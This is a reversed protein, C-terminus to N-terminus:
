FKHTARKFWLSKYDVRGNHNLRVGQLTGGAHVHVTHARHHLFHLAHQHVLKNELELLAQVHLQTDKTQRIRKITDMLNQKLTPSLFDYIFSTPAQLTRILSVIPSKGFAVGCVVIDAQALYQPETLEHIPVVNVTAPIGLKAWQTQLWYAEAEHNAQPRLQTAYIHLPEGQYNSQKLLQLAQEINGNHPEHQQSEDYFFSYAPMYNEYNLDEAIRTIPLALYLAARFLENQQPGQKTLNYTYFSAGHEMRRLTRWPLAGEHEEKPGEQQAGFDYRYNILQREEQFLEPLTLIEVRDVQVRGKFYHEFAELALMTKDHKIVKFPGTGVPLQGFGQPNKELVELPIISMHAYSLYQPFLQDAETLTFCVVYPHPAEVQEIGLQQWLHATNKLTKFRKMTQVVDQASLERGHHFKVGKRLFFSWVNGEASVEWGQALHPVVKKETHEYQVLTDFVHEVIHSDHRSLIYAPDLSVISPYFPYRLVDLERQGEVEIMYGLQGSLWHHFQEKTAQDVHTLQQLAVDYKGELVLEKAYLAQVEDPHLLFILKSSKGRGRVPEWYLWQKNQLEKLLWKTHRKTCCLIAQIEEIKTHFAYQKSQELDEGSKTLAFAEFLLAYHENLKM